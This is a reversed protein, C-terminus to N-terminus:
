TEKWTGGLTSTKRNQSRAMGKAHRRPRKRKGIAEWKAEEGNKRTEELEDQMTQLYSGGAEKNSVMGGGDFGGGKRDQNGNGGIGKGESNRRNIGHGAGERNEEKTEAGTVRQGSGVTGNLGNEEWTWKTPGCRGEENRVDVRRVTEERDKRWINQIARAEELLWNRLM